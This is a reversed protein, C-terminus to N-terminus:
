VADIFEKQTKYAKKTKSSPYSPSLDALGWGCVRVVRNSLFTLMAGYAGGVFEETGIIRGKLTTFAETDQSFPIYSDPSSYDRIIRKGGPKYTSTNGAMYNYLDSEIQQRTFTKTIFGYEADSAVRLVLERKSNNSGRVVSVRLRQLETGPIFRKDIAKAASDANEKCNLCNAVM